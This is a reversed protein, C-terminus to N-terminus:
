LSSRLGVKTTLYGLGSTPPFNADQMAERHHPWTLMLLEGSGVTEWNFVIAGETSGLEYELKSATPYVGHYQDLLARHSDQSVKAM